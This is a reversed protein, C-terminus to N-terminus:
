VVQSRDQHTVLEETKGGWSGQGRQVLPVQTKLKSQKGWPLECLALRVDRTGGQHCPVNNNCTRSFHRSRLLHSAGTELATTHQYAKVFTEGSLLRCDQSATDVSKQPTWTGVLAQDPDVM